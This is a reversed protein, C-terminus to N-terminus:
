ITWGNNFTKNFLRSKLWQYFEVEQALIKRLTADKIRLKLAVSSTSPYTRKPGLFTRSVYSYVCCLHSSSYFDISFRWACVYVTFIQCLYKRFQDYIRVAGKFFYPFETVLANLSEEMYDLLGVVPYWRIINAKARTLAWTSNRERFSFVHVLLSFFNLLRGYNKKSKEQPFAYAVRM